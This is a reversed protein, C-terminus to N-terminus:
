NKKINRKILLDTIRQKKFEVWEYRSHNSKLIEKIDESESYNYLKKFMNISCETYGYDTIVKPYELINSPEYRIYDYEVGDVEPAKKNFPITAHSVAPLYHRKSFRSSIVCHRVCKQYEKLKEYVCLM